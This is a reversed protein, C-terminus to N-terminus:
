KAKYGWQVKPNDLTYIDNHLQFFYKIRAEWRETEEHAKVLRGFQTNKKPIAEEYTSPYSSTITTGALHVRMSCARQQQEDIQKFQARYM